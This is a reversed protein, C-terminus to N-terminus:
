TRQFNTKLSSLLNKNNDAALLYQTIMLKNEGKRRYIEAMNYAYLNDNKMLKSGKQYAEIAEDYKTLRLFANGLKSIIVQDAPLSEIAKRYQKRAKDEEFMREYLNGYTVHQFYYDNKFKSKEFLKIYVEAAKEYEGSNYYESALKTDQGM